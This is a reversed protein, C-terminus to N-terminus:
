EAKLYKKCFNNLKKVTRPNTKEDLWLLLDTKIGGPPAYEHHIVYNAIEFKMGELIEEAKSLNSACPGIVECIKIILEHKHLEKLENRCKETFLQNCLCMSEPLAALVACEMSYQDPKGKGKMRM